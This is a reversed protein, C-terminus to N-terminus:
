DGGRGSMMNMMVTEDGDARNGGAPPPCGAPVRHPRRFVLRILMFTGNALTRRTSHGCLRREGENRGPGRRTVQEEMIAM